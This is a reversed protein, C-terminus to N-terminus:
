LNTRGAEDIHRTSFVKTFGMSHHTIREVEEKYAKGYLDEDTPAPSESVCRNNGDSADSGAGISLYLLSDITLDHAHGKGHSDISERLAMVQNPTEDPWHERASLGGSRTRCSNDPTDRDAGDNHASKPSLNGADDTSPDCYSDEGIEIDRHVGGLVLEAERATRGHINYSKTLRLPKPQYAPAEAIIRAKRQQSM